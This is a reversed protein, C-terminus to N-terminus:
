KAIDKKIDFFWGGLLSGMAIKASGMLGDAIGSCLDCQLSHTVNLPSIGNIYIYIIYIIYLIPTIFYVTVITVNVLQWCHSGGLTRLCPQSIGSSAMSTELWSFWRDIPPKGNDRKIAPLNWHNWHNNIHIKYSLCTPCMETFIALFLQFIMMKLLYIYNFSHVNKLLDGWNNESGGWIYIYIIDVMFM